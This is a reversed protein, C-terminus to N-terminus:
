HKQLQLGFGVFYYGGYFGFPTAELSYINVGEQTNRLDKIRDPYVNFINNAGATITLWSKLSYSLNIDTLIKASFNEDPNLTPNIFRVGTQGFSTNRVLVGFKNAKYNVSFVVKSGPQGHELKGREERNFLINTNISDASLKGASKIDGFLTTKTLNAALTALLSGRKIKLNCNLVVDVGKTDTNIANVFFQAQTVDPFPRLIERVELNTTDFRGSLVIRNRIQIRYADVTLHISNSLAATIGGSINISREATLNPIGFTRAVPDDNRFLGTTSPIVMAGRVILSRTLVSYYRQPLSPARFGNNLSARVSLRETLKYRTAIKAALSGGFDSYHEYRMAVDLLFRQAIETEFDIYAAGVNRTQTVENDPTFGGIGAQKRGLSDYNKWGGEEGAKISYHELRWEAGMSLTSIKEPFSSLSKSFQLNNTLQGYILTGGYFSSPADKGLTFFQTANNTNDGYYRDRNNGYASTLEWRWDNTTQGKAGAIVSLDTARHRNKSQFGNSFLLPNLRNATKPFTYAQAMISNRSNVSATWFLESKKGIAYGGNVLAGLRTVKPSGANSVKNRDFNNAQVLSDDEAKIKQAVAPTTSATINKYVTGMYVGGRYTFDSFRFDASLNLYGKKNLSIGHNVGVILNEGDSKYYLGTQLQVSTKGTSKKLHINIVGAIADSGYQAAAGDRLIEIKEIATFPISNLDNPATGGGLQGRAGSTTIIGMNHRRTGNVLILLQDPNLGRLTVPENNHPRSANFSPATYNLMQTLSVQGTQELQKASFVDVPVATHLNSRLVLSRSGLVVVEELEENKILSVAINKTEAGTITLTHRAEKYGTHSIVVTHQGSSVSMSFKGNKDSLVTTKGGTVTASQLPGDSSTVTGTITGNQAYVLPVFLVFSFALLLIRQVFQLVPLSRVKMIYLLGWRGSSVKTYNPTLRKM